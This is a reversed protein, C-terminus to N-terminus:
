ACRSLALLAAEGVEEPLANAGIVVNAHDVDGVPFGEWAQLKDHRTPTFLLSENSRRIWVSMMEKYMAKRNKYGLAQMEESEWLRVRELFEMGESLLSTEKYAVRRSRALADSIAQGFINPAVDRALRHIGAAYDTRTLGDDSDTRVWIYDTNVEISARPFFERMLEAGKIRYQFVRL